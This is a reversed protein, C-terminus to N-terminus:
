TTSFGVSGVERGEELILVASLRIPVLRGDRHKIEVELGDLRGQGGMEHSHLRKKIQRALEPSRYVDSIHMKGVVQGADLGILSEATHNFLNIIGQRDVGIIGDPCMSV